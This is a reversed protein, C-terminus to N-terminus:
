AVAGPVMVTLVGTVVAAWTTLIDVGVGVGGGIVLVGVGFEVRGALSTCAARCVSGCPM